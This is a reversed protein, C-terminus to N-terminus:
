VYAVEVIEYKTVGEPTHVEITDGVEKGVMARAIPSSFSIKAANIDAEDEGVIKYSVEKEDQLNMLEVTSGFIV